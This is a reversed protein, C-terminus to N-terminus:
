ADLLDAGFFVGHAACVRPSRRRVVEGFGSRLRVGFLATEPEARCLHVWVPVAVGDRDCLAHVVSAIKAAVLESTDPPPVAALVAGRQEPYRRWDMVFQVLPRDIPWSPDVLESALRRVTMAIGSTQPQGM